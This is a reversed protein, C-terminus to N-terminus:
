AIEMAIFHSTTSSQYANMESTGSQTTHPENFTLTYTSSSVHRQVALTYAVQVGKTNATEDLITYTSSRAYSPDLSELRMTMRPYSTGTSIKIDTSDRRLRAGAAYGNGGNNHGHCFGITVMILTKSGTVKPTINVGFNTTGNTLTELNSDLVQEFSATETYNVVHIIHGAPFVVNSGVTGKNLTVTGGSESIVANGSSDVVTNGSSKLKLESNTIKFQGGEKVLFENGDLKLSGAM